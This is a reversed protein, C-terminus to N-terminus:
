IDCSISTLKILSWYSTSILLHPHMYRGTLSYIEAKFQLVGGAPDLAIDYSNKGWKVKVPIGGGFASM